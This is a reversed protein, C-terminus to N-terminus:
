EIFVFEVIRCHTMVKRIGQTEQAPDRRSKECNRLAISEAMKKSRQGVVFACVNYSGDVATALANYGKTKGNQYSDFCANNGGGQALTFVTLMLSIAIFLILKKM